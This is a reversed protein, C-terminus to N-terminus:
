YKTRQGKAKECADLRRKMSEVLTKLMKAPINKLEERVAAKFEEFTNCGRLDVRRQVYAWVNEIPNLDPSNPPHKLLTINTNHKRNFDKLVESAVNHTPDNDQMLVFSSHGVNRFITLASPLLGKSLVDRYETATINRSVDGKKNVYKSKSGSTGTVEVVVTVGYKCIGAYLNYVNPHNVMTAARIDGELLYQQPHVKCGPYKHAFKCRDTFLVNGWCAKSGRMAKCYDLREKVTKGKLFKVKPKGKVVKLKKGRTKLAQQSAAKKLTTRHVLVNSKKDTVLKLAVEEAGAHENSLLLELAHTAAEESLAPKRGTGPIADVGGTAKYRKIWDHCTGYRMNLNKAVRTINGVREWEIIIRWKEQTTLHAM